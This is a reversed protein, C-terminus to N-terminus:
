LGLRVAHETSCRRSLGRAELLYFFPRWYDSTAEMVVLEVSQCVLHDALEAIVATTAGVLWTRQVKRGSGSGERPLRTCVMASAKAIDIAAVRGVQEVDQELEIVEGHEDMPVGERDPSGLRWAARTGCM